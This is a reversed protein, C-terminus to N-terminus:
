TGPGAGQQETGADGAAESGVSVLIAYRVLGWESDIGLARRINTRHFGITHVSLGLADGIEESTKGAGILQVIQQQRPTLRSLGLHSAGMSVRNSVRPVNPSVYRRGALVERLAVVLEEMPSDKPLFGHAGALLAADALVRDVHMTVILIKLAPHQRTLDPLLELGSRGPMQLDLLLADARAGPLKGLLEDGSFAEGVVDFQPELMTRLAQVLLHHDDAIFVRPRGGM